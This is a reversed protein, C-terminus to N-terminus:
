DKDEGKDRISIGGTTEIGPYMIQIVIEIVQCGKEKGRNKM